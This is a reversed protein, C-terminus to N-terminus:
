KQTRRDFNKILTLIPNSDEPVLTIAKDISDNPKWKFKMKKSNAFIIVDATSFYKTPLKLYIYEDM